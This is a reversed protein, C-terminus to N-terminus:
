HDAYIQRILDGAKEHLLFEIGKSRNEFVRLSQHKGDEASCLHGVFNRENSVEEVLGVFNDDSTPHGERKLLHKFSHFDAFAEEVRFSGLNDALQHVLGLLFAHLDVQWNIENATVLEVRVR